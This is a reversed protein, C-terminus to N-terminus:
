LTCEMVAELDLRNLQKLWVHTQPLLYVPQLQRQRNNDLYGAEVLSRIVNTGSKHLTSEALKNLGPMIRAQDQIFTDWADVTLNTKYVRKTEAVVANMFDAIVPTHIIFALMLLQKYDSDSAHVVTQNFEVGLPELRRSIARAYRIATHASNKKLINEDTFLRNWEAKPRPQLLTEAVLRSEALLLGGSTLDRLYQKAKALEKVSNM